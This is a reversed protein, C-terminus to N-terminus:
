QAQGATPVPVQAILEEIEDAANALQAVLIAVLGAAGSLHEPVSLAAGAYKAKSNRHVDIIKSWRETKMADRGDRHELVVFPEEQRVCHVLRYNGFAHIVRPSNESPAM